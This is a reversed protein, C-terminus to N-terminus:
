WRCRGRVASLRARAVSPALPLLAVVSSETVDYDAEEGRGVRPVSGRTGAGREVPAASRLM